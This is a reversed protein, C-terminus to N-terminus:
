FHLHWFRRPIELNNSVNPHPRTSFFLSAVPDANVFELGIRVGCQDPDTNRDSGSSKVYYFQPYDVNLRM